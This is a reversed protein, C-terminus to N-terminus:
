AGRHSVGAFVRGSCTGSKRTELADELEKVNRSQKTVMRSTFKRTEKPALPITSVLDGVQYNRPEWKQRYTLMIGFNISDKAFVDFAYPESLLDDLETLLASLRSSGSLGGGPTDTAKAAVGLGLGLGSRMLGLGSRMDKDAIPGKKPM